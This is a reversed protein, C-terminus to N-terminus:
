EGFAEETYGTCDKLCIHRSTFGAPNWEILRGGRVSDRGYADYGLGADQSLTIGMYEGSCSNFHDHAAVIERIERREYAAAFLGTNFAVGGVFEGFEGRFNVATPNAAILTHEALPTHLMMVGPTKHGYRAEMAESVEWYWACQEYFVSCSNDFGTPLYPLVLPEGIGCMASYDRMGAHSDFAWFCCAPGWVEKGKRWVPLLYTGYGHLFSPGKRSLCHPFSAAVHTPLGSERDHNGPVHAWPIGRKECPEMIDEYYAHLREESGLGEEDHTLDGAIFLLDPRHEAILLELAAKLRPDWVERDHYAHFDSVCLVRFSGDERCYLPFKTEWAEKLLLEQKATLM